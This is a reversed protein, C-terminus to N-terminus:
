PPAEAPPLCVIADLGVVQGAESRNRLEITGGLRDCVERCIALGLGSGTTPHGTHFPEFLRERQSASLGPGSDRVLLRACDAAPEVLLSLGSGAATERVANHLLNRALERRMWAHGRVWVPADAHLEFDVGLDAFV